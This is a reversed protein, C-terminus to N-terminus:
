LGPWRPGPWVGWVLRADVAEVVVAGVHGGWDRLARLSWRAAPGDVTDVKHIWEERLAVSFSTWPYSLGAGIAKVFAEKRTWISLFAEDSAGAASLEARETRSFSQAAIAPAEPVPALRELDVGVRGLRTLAIVASSGSHSLNFRM